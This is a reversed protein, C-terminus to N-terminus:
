MQTLVLHFAQCILQVFDQCEKLQKGGLLILSKAKPYFLATIGGISNEQKPKILIGTFSDRSRRIWIHEHGVRLCQRILGSTVWPLHVKATINDIVFPSLQSPGIIDVLLKIAGQISDQDKIGTINIWHENKVSLKFITFCLKSPLQLITFNHLKKITIHQCAAEIQSVDLPSCTLHGKINTIKLDESM